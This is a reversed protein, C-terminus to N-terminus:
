PWAHAWMVSAIRARSPDRQVIIDEGTRRQRPAQKKDPYQEVQLQYEFVQELDGYKAGKNDYRAHVTIKHPGPTLPELMLWYGDSAAPYYDKPQDGKRELYSANPYADFCSPTRQRHHAINRVRIGDIRVDARDLHDNNEAASAVAQACSAPTDPTNMGLMTIVPFFLYKGVPMTCHRVVDDTGDTGALFWVEGSQHLGCLAGTPDQYPRVGPRSRNAWQWWSVAYDAQSVGAVTATPSLVLSAAVPNVSFVALGITAVLTFCRIM